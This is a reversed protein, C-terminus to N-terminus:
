WVGGPVGDALTEPERPISVRLLPTMNHDVWIKREGEVVMLLGQWYICDIRYVLYCCPQPFFISKLEAIQLFQM